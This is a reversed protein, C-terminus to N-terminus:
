GPQWQRLRAPRYGGFRQGVAAREMAGCCRSAPHPQHCRGQDRRQRDIGGDLRGTVSLPPAIIVPDLEPASPLDRSLSLSAGGSATTDRDIRTTAAFELDLGTVGLTGDTDRALEADGELVLDTRVGQHTASIAPNLTTVFREGSSTTSYSGKLGISWDIEVPPHGPESPVAFEEPVPAAPYLGPALRDERLSTEDIILPDALAPGALVTSTLLIRLM